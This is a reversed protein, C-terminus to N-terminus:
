KHYPQNNLIRYARYIQEFVITTILEPDMEMPSIAILEHHPINEEGIVIAIESNGSIAMINIKHAFEESSLQQGTTSIVIKYIKDPLKALLQKKNKVHILQIKCYRNLRKQYEQIAQHYIKNKSIAVLYIKYNM